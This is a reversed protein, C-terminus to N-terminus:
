IPVLHAMCPADRIRGTRYLEAFGAYGDAHMWGKFDALRRRAKPERTKNRAAM